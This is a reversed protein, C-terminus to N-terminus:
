PTTSKCLLRMLCVEWAQTHIYTFVFMCVYMCVCIIVSGEISNQDSGHKHQQLRFAEDLDVERTFAIVRILGRVWFGLESREAM